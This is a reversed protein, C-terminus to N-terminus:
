EEQIKTIKLDVIVTNANKNTAWTKEVRFINYESKYETVTKFGNPIEAPHLEWREEVPKLNHKEKFELFMLELCNESVWLKNYERLETDTPENENQFENKSNMKLENQTKMKMKMEPNM